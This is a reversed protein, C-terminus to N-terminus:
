KATTGAPAAPNAPAAPAGSAPKEAPSKPPEAPTCGIVFTILSLGLLLCVTNKM